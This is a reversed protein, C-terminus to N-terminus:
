KGRRREFFTADSVLDRMLACAASIDEPSLESALKACAARQEETTVLEWIGTAPELRQLQGGTFVIQGDGRLSAALRESLARTDATM